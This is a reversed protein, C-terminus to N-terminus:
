FVEEEEEEEEEGEEPSSSFHTLMETDPEPQRHYREMGALVIFLGLFDFINLAYSSIWAWKNMSYLALVVFAVAVSANITRYLILPTGYALVGNVAFTVLLTSLIYFFTALSAFRCEPDIPYRGRPIAQGTFLCLCLDTVATSLDTIAYANWGM